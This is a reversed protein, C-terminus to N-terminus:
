TRNKLNNNQMDAGFGCTEICLSSKSLIYAWSVRMSASLSRLCWGVTIPERRQLRICM